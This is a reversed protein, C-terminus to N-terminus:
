LQCEGAIHFTNVFHRFPLLIRFPAAIYRDCYESIVGNDGWINENHGMGKKHSPLFRQEVLGFNFM